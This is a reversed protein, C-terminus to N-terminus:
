PGSRVYGRRAWELRSLECAEVADRLEAALRSGEQPTSADLIGVLSDRLLGEIKCALVSPVAGVPTWWDVLSGLIEALIMHRADGTAVGLSSCEAALGELRNPPVAAFGGAALERLAEM